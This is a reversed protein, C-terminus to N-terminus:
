GRGPPSNVAECHFFGYKDALGKGPSSNVVERDLTM